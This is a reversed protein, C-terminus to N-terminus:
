LFAKTGINRVFIPTLSTTENMEPFQPRDGLTRFKIDKM